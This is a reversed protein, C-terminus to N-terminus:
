KLMIIIIITIFALGILGLAIYLMTETAPNRMFDAFIKEQKFKQLNISSFAVDVTIGDKGKNVVKHHEIIDEIYTKIDESFEFNIPNPLNELYYSCPSNEEDYWICQKDLVYLGGNYKFTKGDKNLVCYRVLLRKNHSFIYAKIYRKSLKKTAFNKIKHRDLYLKVAGFINGLFFVPFLFMTIIVTIVISAKFVYLMVLIILPLFIMFLIINRVLAKKKPRFTQSNNIKEEKSIEKNELKKKPPNPIKNIDFNPLTEEIDELSPFSVSDNEKNLKKSM